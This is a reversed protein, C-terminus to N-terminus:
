KMAETEQYGVNGMSTFCMSYENMLYTMSNDIKLQANTQRAMTQNYSKIGLPKYM